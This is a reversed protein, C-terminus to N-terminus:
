SYFSTALDKSSAKCVKKGKKEKGQAETGMLANREEGRQTKSRQWSPVCSSCPLGGKKKGTPLLMAASREKKKVKKEQSRDVLPPLGEERKGEWTSSRFHQAARIVKREQVLFL